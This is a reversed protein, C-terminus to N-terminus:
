RGTQRTQRHSFLSTFWKQLWAHTDNCCQTCSRDFITWHLIIVSDKWKVMLKKKMKLQTVSTYVKVNSYFASCRTSIQTQFMWMFLMCVYMFWFNWKKIDLWNLCIFFFIQWFVTHMEPQQVCFILLSSLHLNKDLNTFPPKKVTKGKRREGAALHLCMALLYLLCTVKLMQKHNTFQTAM